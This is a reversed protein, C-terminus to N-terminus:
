SCYSSKYEGYQREYMKIEAEASDVCNQYWESKFDCQYRYKIATDLRSLIVKIANESEKICNITEGNYGYIITKEVPIPTPITTPEPTVVVTKIVTEKIIKIEPTPSAILKPTILPSFIPVISSPELLTQSQVKSARIWIFFVSIALILSLIFITKM